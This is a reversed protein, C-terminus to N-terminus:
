TGLEEPTKYRRVHRWFRKLVGGIGAEKRAQFDRYRKLEFAFGQASFSLEKALDKLVSVDRDHQEKKLRAMESRLGDAVRIPEWSGLLNRLREIELEMERRTKVKM